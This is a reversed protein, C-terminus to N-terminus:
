GWIFGIHVGYSGRHVKAIRYFLSYNDYGVGFSGSQVKIMCTQIGKNKMRVGYPGMLVKAKRYLLLHNDYGVGNSGSHVKSICANMDKYDNRM